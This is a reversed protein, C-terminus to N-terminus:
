TDDRFLKHIHHKRVITKQAGLKKQMDRNKHVHQARRHTHDETKTLEEHTNTHTNQIHNHAEGGRICDCCWCMCCVCCVLIKCVHISPLRLIRFSIDMASLLSRSRGRINPAFSLLMSRNEQWRRPVNANGHHLRFELLQNVRLDWVSKKENNRLDWDFGLASLREVRQLVMKGCKRQKRQWM